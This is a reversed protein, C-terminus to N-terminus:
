IHSYKVKIVLKKVKTTRSITIGPKHLDSPFLMAFMGRKLTITDYKENFLEYDNKADYKKIASQGILTTIGIKEEGSLMIHIDIYNRHAELFGESNNKTEYTNVLAFIQEQHIAHKGLEIKELDTTAIYNFATKFRANIESYLACNEIKDFIM